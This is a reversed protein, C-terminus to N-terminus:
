TIVIGGDTFRGVAMALDDTAIAVEEDAGAFFGAAAYRLTPCGRSHVVGIQDMSVQPSPRWVKGSQWDEDKIEYGFIRFDDIYDSDYKPAQYATNLFTVDAALPSFSGVLRGGCRAAMVVGPQGDFLSGMKAHISWLKTPAHPSIEVVSKAGHVFELGTGHGSYLEGDAEALLDIVPLDVLMFSALERPIDSVRLLPLTLVSISGTVGVLGSRSSSKTYARQRGDYMTALIYLLHTRSVKGERRLGDALQSCMALFRTSGYGWIGRFYANKNVLEFSILPELLKYYFGFVLAQYQTWLEMNEPQPSQNTTSRTPFDLGTHTQLWEARKPDMEGPILQELASLISQSIDPFGHCALMSLSPAFRSKVPDHSELAYDIDSSNANYPGLSSPILEMKTAAKCGLDWFMFMKNITDRSVALTDIMSEPKGM